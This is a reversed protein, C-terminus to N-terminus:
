VFAFHENCLFVSRSLSLSLLLCVCLFFAHAGHSCGIIPNSAALSLVFHVEDLLGSARKQRAKVLEMAQDATHIVQPCSTWEM